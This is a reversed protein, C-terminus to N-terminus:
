ASRRQRACQELRRDHREQLRHRAERVARAAEPADRKLSQRALWLDGERGLSRALEVRQGERSPATRGLVDARCREVNALARLRQRLAHRVAHGHAGRAKELARRFRREAKRRASDLHVPRLGDVPWDALRTRLAQLDEGSRRWLAADPGHAAWLARREAVLRAQTAELAVRHPAFAADDLLAAILEVRVQADRLDSFRRRLRSLRRNEDRAWDPAHPALLRVFGRLRQLGKRLRHVASDDGLRALAWDQAIADVQAAALASLRAGPTAPAPKPM